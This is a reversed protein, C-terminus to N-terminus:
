GNLSASGYAVSNTDQIQSPIQLLITGTNRLARTGLGGISRWGVRNDLTNNRGGPRTIFEGSASKGIPKYEIIDIQLYDTSETMAEYPYRLIGGQMESTIQSVSKNSSVNKKSKLAAAASM